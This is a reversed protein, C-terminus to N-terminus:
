TDHGPIGKLKALYSAFKDKKKNLNNIAGSINDGSFISDAFVGAIKFSIFGGVGAIIILILPPGILGVILNGFADGISDPNRHSVDEMYAVCSRLGFIISFILGMWGIINAVKTKKKDTKVNISNSTDAIKFEISSIINRLYNEASKLYEKGMSVTNKLGLQADLGDFYSNRDILRRMEILETKFDKKHFKNIDSEDVQNVIENINNIFTRINSFTDNCSKMVKDRLRKFLKNVDERIPDIIKDNDAKIGYNKDLKIAKELNTISKEIKKLQANYQANQYLAEAFDPSLEIAEETYKEADVIQGNDYLILAKYLLAYSAHYSSEPKAYRIAKEFYELAKDKEANHFLYIMGLSIHITFDFKNLTESELFEEEAEPILNNAYAREARKRRERAKTDLPAQLVELISKLMERNQELQWVVESIGWEFAAQLGYIGQEVREIGCAINDIGDNVREQSAIIANTSAMQTAILARTSTNIVEAQKSVDKGLQIGKYYSNQKQYPTLDGLTM